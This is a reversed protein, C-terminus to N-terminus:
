EGIEQWTSTAIEGYLASGYEVTVKIKRINDKVRGEVEIVKPNGSSGVGSSVTVRACGENNACGGSVFDIPYCGTPLSPSDCVYDNKRAIRLLADAVADEAYMFAKGSQSTGISVLSESVSLTTISFGVVLVFLALTVVALLSAVGRTILPIRNQKKSSTNM